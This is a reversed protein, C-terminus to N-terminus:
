QGLLFCSSFQLLSSVQFFFIYFDSKKLNDGGKQRAADYKRSLGWKSQIRPLLSIIVPFFSDTFSQNSWIPQSVFADSGFCSESACIFIQTGGLPTVVEFFGVKGIQHVSFQHSKKLRSYGRLWM